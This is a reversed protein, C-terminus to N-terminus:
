LNYLTVYQEPNFPDPIRPDQDDDFCQDLYSSDIAFMGGGEHKFVTMEVPAKSDPDKVTVEKVYEASNSLSKAELETIRAELVAKLETEPHQGLYNKILKIENEM